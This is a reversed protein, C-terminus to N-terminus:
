FCPKHKKLPFTHPILNVPHDSPSLPFSPSNLDAPMVCCNDPFCAYTHSYTRQKHFATHLELSSQLVPVSTQHRLIALPFGHKQVTQLFHWSPCHYQVEYLLFIRLFNNSYPPHLVPM